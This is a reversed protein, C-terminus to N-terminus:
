PWHPRDTLAARFGRTPGLAPSNSSITSTASTPPRGSGITPSIRDLYTAPMRSGGMSRSHPDPGQRRRHQQDSRPAAASSRASRDVSRAEDRRQHQPTSAAQDTYEEYVWIVDADAQDELLTYVLTGPESEVHTLMSAMGALVDPRKGAQATIKAIVAITSSM